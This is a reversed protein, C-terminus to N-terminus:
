RVMHVFRYQKHNTTSYVNIGYAYMVGSGFIENENPVLMQDRNHFNLNLGKIDHTINIVLVFQIGFTKNNKGPDFDDM